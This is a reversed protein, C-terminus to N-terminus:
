QPPESSGTSVASRIARSSFTHTSTVLRMTGPPLSSGRMIASRHLHCM